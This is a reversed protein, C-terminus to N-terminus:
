STPMKESEIFLFAMMACQGCWIHLNQGLNPDDAWMLQAYFCVLNSHMIQILFFCFFLQVDCSGLKDPKSIKEGSFDEILAWFLHYTNLLM